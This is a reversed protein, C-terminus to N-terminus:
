YWSDNELLHVQANITFNETDEPIVYEIYYTSDEGPRLTSSEQWESSNIRFRAKDITGNNSQGDVAIRITEGSNLGELQSSSLQNWEQDYAIIEGCSASLQPTQGRSMWVQINSVDKCEPGEGIRQWTFNKDQVAVRYCGDDSNGQTYRREEGPKNTIELYDITRTVSESGSNGPEDFLICDASQDCEAGSSARERYDQQRQVLFVGAAVGGILFLVGFITAIVKKSDRKTTDQEAVQSIENIKADEQEMPPSQDPKEDVNNNNNATDNQKSTHDSIIATKSDADKKNNDNDM